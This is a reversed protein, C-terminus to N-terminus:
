RSEMLDALDTVVIDAGHKRLANAQGVRDIGIVLGFGGARGAEVGALADEYVACRHATKGLMTAAALYTDPSPKGNLGRAEAVNGDVQAEFLGHMGAATLVETCNKSSSVVALRLGADRAAQVYRISGKYPDVGRKRILDLFLRDKRIALGGVTEADPSNADSDEPLSLHRSGLFARVGDERSKGDVYTDYDNVKGFPKFLQGTRTARARLYEDFIQKWAAAHVKATQTLVGDLDFLCATVTPVLGLATRATRTPLTPSNYTSV